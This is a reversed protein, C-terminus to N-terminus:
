QGQVVPRRASAAAGAQPRRPGGFISMIGQNLPTQPRARVVRRAQPATRKATAAARKKAAAPDAKAPAKAKSPAKQKPSAQAPKKSAAPEAGPAPPAAPTEAEASDEPPSVEGPTEENPDARAFDPQPQPQPEATENPAPVSPAEDAEGLKEAAPSPALPVISSTTVDPELMVQKVEEPPPPLALAPAMVITPSLPEPTLADIVVPAPADPAAVQQPMDDPPVEIPSPQATAPKAVNEPKAPESGHDARPGEVEPLASTTSPDAVHKPLVAAPQLVEVDPPASGGPGPLTILMPLMAAVCLGHM